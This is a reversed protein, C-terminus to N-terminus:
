GKVGPELKRILHGLIGNIFRGSDATSYMKALEVAENIIVGAPTEPFYEMEYVSLRLLNRDLAPMRALTWEEALEGIQADIDGLNRVAGRVLVTCFDAADESLREGAMTMKLAEEPDAKGVDVQFLVKLATERAKRRSM